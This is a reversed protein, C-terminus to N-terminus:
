YAGSQEKLNIFFSAENIKMYCNISQTNASIIPYVHPHPPLILSSACPGSKTEHQDCWYLLFKM